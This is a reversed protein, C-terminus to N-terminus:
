CHHRLETLLFRPPESLVAGNRLRELRQALGPTSLKRVIRLGRQLCQFYWEEREATVLIDVTRRRLREPHERAEDRRGVLGDLHDGTRRMVKVYGARRQREHRTFVERRDDAPRRGM